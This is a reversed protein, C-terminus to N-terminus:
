HHVLVINFGKDTCDAVTNQIYPETGNATLGPILVITGKTREKSYWLHLATQGGDKQEMIVVKADKTRKWRYFDKVLLNLKGTM